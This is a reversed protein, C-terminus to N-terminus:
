RVVILQPETSFAVNPPEDLTGCGLETDSHVDDGSGIGRAHGRDDQSRVYCSMPRTLGSLARVM